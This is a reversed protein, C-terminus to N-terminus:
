RTPPLLELTLKREIALPVDQQCQQYQENCNLKLKLSLQNYMDAKQLKGDKTSITSHIVFYERGYQLHFLKAGAPMAMQFNNPIGAVVPTDIAPTIYALGNAAPPLFSTRLEATNRDLALLKITIALCDEGKLISQGNAFNGITPKPSPFSDGPHQLSDIGIYPHIAVLFTNFDTISETMDPITLPPLGMPGKPTLSVRYPPTSQAISSRDSSDNPMLIRLSEWSIEDNPNGTSDTVVKLRCISVNTSKWQGNYYQQCTLRYRYTDGIRYKRALAPNKQAQLPLM